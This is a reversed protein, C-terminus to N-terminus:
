RLGQRDHSAERDFKERGGLSFPSDLFALAAAKAREYAEDRKAAAELEIALYASVSLGRHAAAARARKLLRQEVSLTINQKPM